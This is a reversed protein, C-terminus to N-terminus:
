ITVLKSINRYQRDLYILIFMIYVFKFHDNIFFTQLILLTLCAFVTILPNVQNISLRINLEIKINIIFLLYKRSLKYVM